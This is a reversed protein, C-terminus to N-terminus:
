FKMHGRSGGHGFGEGKGEAKFKAKLKEGVRKMVDAEEQTLTGDTVLSQLHEEAKKKMAAEMKAKLDDKTIGKETLLEQFKKGGNLATKLEDTTMGLAEAKMELGPGGMKGDMHWGMKKGQTAADSQAYASGITGLGIAAVLALAYVLKKNMSFYLSYISVICRRADDVVGTAM